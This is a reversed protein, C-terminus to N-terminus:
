GSWCRIGEASRELLEEVELCPKNLYRAVEAVLTLASFERRERLYSLDEKIAQKYETLGERESHRCSLSGATLAVPFCRRSARQRARISGVAVLDHHGSCLVRSACTLFDRGRVLM